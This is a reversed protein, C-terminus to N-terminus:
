NISAKIQKIRLLLYVLMSFLGVFICTLQVSFYDSLYGAILNGIPVFGLFCSVFFGMVVSKIEKPTSIQIFSNIYGTNMVMCYGLIAFLIFSIYINNIAGFLIIFILILLSINFAKKNLDNSKNKSILTFTAFLAGLGRASLLIGFGFSSLKYIDKAFIPMLVVPTAMAAGILAILILTYKISQEKKLFSITTKFNERYEKLCNIHSNNNPLYTNNINIKYYFTIAFLILLINFIFCFGENSFSIIFGALSPSIFRAINSLLSNFGLVNIIKNKAVIDSILVQRITLDFSTLIGTIIAAIYLHWIQLLDYFFLLSLFTFLVFFCYNVSIILKNRSFNKIIIGAIPPVFLIPIYELFAIIGLKIPSDTLKYVLWPITTIQIWKANDSLFKGIFFNKLNKHNFFYVLNNKLHYFKLM